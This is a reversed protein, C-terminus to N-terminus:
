VIKGVLLQANACEVGFCRSPRQLAEVRFHGIDDIDIVDGVLHPDKVRDIRSIGRDGQDVHSSAQQRWRQASPLMPNMSAAFLPSIVNTRKWM